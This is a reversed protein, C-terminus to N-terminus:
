GIVELVIKRIDVRFGNDGGIFCIVSFPSFDEPNVSYEHNYILSAEDYSYVNLIAKNEDAKWLLEYVAQSKVSGVNYYQTAGNENVLWHETKSGSSPRVLRVGHFNFSNDNKANQWSIGFKIYATSYSPYGRGYKYFKLSFSQTPDIESTEIYYMTCPSNGSEIKLLCNVQDWQFLGADCDQKRTGILEPDQCFDFETIGPQAGGLPKGFEGLIGAVRVLNV